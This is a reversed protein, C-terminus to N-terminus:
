GLGGNTTDGLFGLAKPQAVPPLNGFIPGADPSSLLKRVTPVHEGGFSPNPIPTLPNLYKMINVKYSVTSKQKRYEWNENRNTELEQSKIHNEFIKWIYAKGLSRLHILPQCLDREALIRCVVPIKGCYWRTIQCLWPFDEMLSPKYSPFDVILPGDIGHSHWYISIPNEMISIPNEMIFWGDELQITGHVGWGSFGKDKLDPSPGFSWRWVSFNSSHWYGFPIGWVDAIFTDPKYLGKYMYIYIYM